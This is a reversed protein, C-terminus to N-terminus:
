LGNTMEKPREIEGLYIRKDSGGSILIPDYPHFDVANVSGQHGPLGYEINGTSVNWIYAIRDSSGCAVRKGDPSWACRLLNREFNHQHGKSDAFVANAKLLRNFIGSEPLAIWQIPFFMGGMFNYYTWSSSGRSRNDYLKFLTTLPKCIKLANDIGASIVQDALDNFTVATVQYKNEFKVVPAKTRIDHVLCLGDEGGSVVLVPGRRAPHASNVFDTHNTFKRACTGTEMDWIRVTKDTSCSFLYDGSTSIHIEMIAGKHGKLTSFNECDGYINWLLIQQDFGASAFCTGDSSASVSFIEGQHGTLLMSPEQLGSTRPINAGQERLAVETRPRKGYPDAAEDFSALQLSM